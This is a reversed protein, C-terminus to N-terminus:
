KLQKREKNSETYTATRKKALDRYDTNILQSPFTPASTAFGHLIRQPRQPLLACYPFM